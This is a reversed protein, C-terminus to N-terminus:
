VTRGARRGRRVAELSGRVLTTIEKNNVGTQVSLRVSWKCLWLSKHMGIYLPTLIPWTYNITQLLLSLGSSAARQLMLEATLEITLRIGFSHIGKPDCSEANKIM